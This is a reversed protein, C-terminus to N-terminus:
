KRWAAHSLIMRLFARSFATIPRRGIGPASMGTIVAFWALITQV